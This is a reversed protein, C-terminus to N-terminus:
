YLQSKIENLLSNRYESIEQREKDLHIKLDNLSWPLQRVADGFKNISLVLNSM